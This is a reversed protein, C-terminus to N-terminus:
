VLMKIVVNQSSISNVPNRIEHSVTANVQAMIMKETREDEIMLKATQDILQM